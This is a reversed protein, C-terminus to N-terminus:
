LKKGELRINGLTKQGGLSYKRASNNKKLKTVFNDILLHVWGHFDPPTKWFRLTQPSANGGKGKGVGRRGCKQERRLKRSARIRFFSRRAASNRERPVPVSAACALEAPLGGGPPPPVRKHFPGPISTPFKSTFGQPSQDPSRRLKKPGRLSVLSYDEKPKWAM